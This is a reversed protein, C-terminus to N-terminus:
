RRFSWGMAGLLYFNKTEKKGFFFVKRRSFRLMGYVYIGCGPLESGLGDVL